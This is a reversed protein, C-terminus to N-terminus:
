WHGAGPAVPCGPAGAAVATIHPHPPPIPHGNHWGQGPPIWKALSGAHLHLEAAQLGATTLLGWGLSQPSPGMSHTDKPLTSNPPYGQLSHLQTLMMPHTDTPLTRHPPPWLIPTHLATALPHTGHATGPSHRCTPIEQPQCGHPPHGQMPHGQPPCGRSPQRHSPPTGPTPIKPLEQPRNCCGFDGHACCSHGWPTRPRPARHGAPTAVPVARPFTGGQVAQLEAGAVGCGAGTLGRGDTQGDARGEVGGDM